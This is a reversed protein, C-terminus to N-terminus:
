SDKGDKDQARKDLLLGGWVGAALCIFLFVTKFFGYSIVSVAFILAALVLIVTWKYRKLFEIITKDDM